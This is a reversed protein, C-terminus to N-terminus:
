DPVAWASTPNRALHHPAGRRARREAPKLSAGTEPRSEGSGAQSVGLISFLYEWREWSWVPATKLHEAVRRDIEEELEPSIYGGYPGEMGM